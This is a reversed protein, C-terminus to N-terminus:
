LIERSSRVIVFKGLHFIRSISGMEREPALGRSDFNKGWRIELCVM